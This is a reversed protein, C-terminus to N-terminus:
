SSASYFNTGRKIIINKIRALIRFHARLILGAFILVAKIIVFQALILEIVVSMDNLCEEGCKSFNFSNTTTRTKSCACDENRREGEDCKQEVDGREEKLHNM